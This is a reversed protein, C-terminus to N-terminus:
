GIEPKWHSWDGAYIVEEELEVKFREQVRQKVLFALNRMDGATAHSVNILFNAHKPSVEAGGIQAGKLGCTSILYGAPVVGADKMAQPLDPLNQALENNSVNKFYSGASCEVPQKLTRQEQFSRAKAFIEQRDGSQLKLRAALLVTPPAGPRRLRSDRYSFDMWDPSVTMRQGETVLDIDILLDAINSRYAGANSVLAGGLTGPIGVAFELGSLGQQATKLFLDQFCIGAEAYTIEGPECSKFNNLIVLGRIGLDSVVMNSGFGLMFMPVNFQHALSAIQALGEIATANYFLDAPGGVRLTTHLRLLVNQEIHHPRPLADLLQQYRNEIPTEEEM